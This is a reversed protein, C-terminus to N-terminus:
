GDECVQLLQPSRGSALSVRLSRTYLHPCQLVSISRSRLAAILIRRSASRRCTSAYYFAETVLCGRRHSVPSPILPRAVNTNCTLVLIALYSAQPDGDLFIRSEDVVCLSHSIHSLLTNVRTLLCIEWARPSSEVERPIERTKGPYKGHVRPHSSAIGHIVWGKDMNGM